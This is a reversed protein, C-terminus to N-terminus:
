AACERPVYRAADLDHLQGNCAPCRPSKQVAHARLSGPLARYHHLVGAAHREGRLLRLALAGELAGVVGVVPGVVGAEACGQSPVDPIDEFVCRLCASQGPLSALAWGTWRVAGAQVCAVSAISCADAILFKTAFNDAGEVVLDFKGVIELANDPLLRMERAVARTKHKGGSALLSDAEIRACALQAKPRGVEDARYLLQRHLNSAEVLDDDWVELYGVGSQALVSAVPTGLGGAGVLLVRKTSLDSM